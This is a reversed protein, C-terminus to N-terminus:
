FTPAAAAGNTHADGDSCSVPKCKAAIMM